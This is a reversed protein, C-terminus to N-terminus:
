EGEAVVVRNRGAAKAEYLARDTRGIWEGTEEDRRHVAVGFSATMRERELYTGQEVALRLKEASAQGGAADQMPLLILFEEGGWRCCLDARRLNRTLIDALQRLVDDGVAHGYCDNISKFHDIDLMVLVLPTHYREAERVRGELQGLFGARSLLGTLPDTVSLRGLEQNQRLIIAHKEDLRRIFLAILAYVAALSLFTVLLTGRAQGRGEKIITSLPIRLSIFARIRGAEENFGAKDGYRSILDGPADEPNGHCKLCGASNSQVPVAMFLWQEGSREVVQRIEDRQGANFQRLVGLEWEDAQNVPNRPNDSALKIYIPPLGRALREANLWEMVNRAVFTRSMLAPSFYNEPLKGERQLRYIEPRQVNAVYAHVARQTLLLNLAQEQAEELAYHETRKAYLWALWAFVLCFLVLLWLLANRNKRTLPNELHRPVSPGM